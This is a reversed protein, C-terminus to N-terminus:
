RGNRVPESGPEQRRFAEKFLELAAPAHGSFHNNAFAYVTLCRDILGRIVGVWEEMEKTRDVVVKDWKKTVEEIKYRDGLWRIYAFDATM